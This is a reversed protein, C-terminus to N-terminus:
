IRIHAGSRAADAGAACHDRGSCEACVGCDEERRSRWAIRAERGLTGERLHYPVYQVFCTLIHKGAPALSSDANSSVVCDVWLQEPFRALSRSTM